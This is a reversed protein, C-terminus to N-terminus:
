LKEEEKVNRAYYLQLAEINEIKILKNSCLDKANLSRETLM